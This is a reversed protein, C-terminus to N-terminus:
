VRTIRHHAAATGLLFHCAIDSISSFIQYKEHKGVNCQKAQNPPTGRVTMVLLWVGNITFLGFAPILYKGVPIHQFVCWVVGAVILLDLVIYVTFIRTRSM